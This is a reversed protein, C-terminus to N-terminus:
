MVDPKRQELLLMGERQKNIKADKKGTKKQTPQKESLCNKKMKPYNKYKIAIHLEAETWRLGSSVLATYTGIDIYM